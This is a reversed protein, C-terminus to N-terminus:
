PFDGLGLAPVRAEEGPPPLVTRERLLLVLDRLRDVEDPPKAFAPMGHVWVDPQVSTPNPSPQIDFKLTM